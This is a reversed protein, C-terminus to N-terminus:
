SKTQTAYGLEDAVKSITLTDKSQQTNIFVTLKDMETIPMDCAPKGNLIAVALKAGAIGIDKEAVGLAFSAGNIVSGEDSAMLPIQRQSATKVLTSIGSALLHDKLILIAETNAPLANATTMLEPLTAVMYATVQLQNERGAIKAREVSPLVKNATSHILAVNKLNPYLRHLFALTEEPRVEDHVVALQCSKLKARDTQSIDSALSLIAQKPVMALTMETSDLGIPVILDFKDDRMQQIMARQINLDLQANKVKVVVPKKFDAALTTKFGSVIEELATHEMPILIGIKLHSAPESQCGVIGFLMLFCLSVRKLFLM